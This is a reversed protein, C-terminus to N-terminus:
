IDAAPGVQSRGSAQEPAMYGPTGVVMGTRTHHLDEDLTKALGFDTTKPVLHQPPLGGPRGPCVPLDTGVSLLVNAPKLDRHVVGREHAFHTGRAVAEVLRASDAMPRPRRDLRDALSGGAVYELCLYAHGQHEGVEHVQIINP